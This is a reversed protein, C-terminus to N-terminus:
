PRPWDRARLPRRGGRSRADVLGVDGEAALGEAAEPMTQRRRRPGRVQGRIGYQDGVASSGASCADDGLEVQRRADRADARGGLSSGATRAGSASSAASHVTSRAKPRATAPRARRTETPKPGPQLREDLAGRGAVGADEDLVQADGFSNRAEGEVGLRHVDDDAVGESPLRERLCPRRWHARFGRRTAM